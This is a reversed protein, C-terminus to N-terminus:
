KLSLAEALREDFAKTDQEAGKVASVYSEFREKYAAEIDKVKGNYLEDYKKIVENYKQKYEADSKARAVSLRKDAENQAEKVLSSAQLEVEILHNIINIESEAM